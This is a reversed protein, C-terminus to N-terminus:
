QLLPLQNTVLYSNDLMYLWISNTIWVADYHNNEENLKDIIELDDYYEVKLNIKEKKAFNMLDDEFFKNANSSIITFYREDYNFVNDMGEEILPKFANYMILIVIVIFIFVGINNNKKNYM